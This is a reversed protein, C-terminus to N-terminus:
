VCHIHEVTNNPLKDRCPSTNWNWRSNTTHQQKITSLVM